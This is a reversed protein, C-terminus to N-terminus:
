VFSLVGVAELLFRERECRRAEEDTEEEEEEESMSSEDSDGPSFDGMMAEQLRDAEVNKWEVELREEDDSSEALDILKDSRIQV